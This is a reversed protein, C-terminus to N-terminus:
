ASIWVNRIWYFYVALCSIVNFGITCSLITFILHSVYERELLEVAEQLVQSEEQEERARRVLLDQPDKFEQLVRSFACPLRLFGFTYDYMHTYSWTKPPSSWSVAEGKAGSEGKAGPAGAEGQPSFSKSSFMFLLLFLHNFVLLCFM